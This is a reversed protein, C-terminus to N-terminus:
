NEKQLHKNHRVFCNHSHEPTGPTTLLEPVQALLERTLVKGVQVIGLIDHATIVQNYVVDDIGVTLVINGASDIYSEELDTLDIDFTLAPLKDFKAPMWNKHNNLVVKFPQQATVYYMVASVLKDM